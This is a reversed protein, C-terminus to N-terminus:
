GEEFLLELLKRESVRLHRNVTPQTIGLMEAVEEGSTTRPWEFFGSLYATQLVEIQRDTLREELASRMSDGYRSHTARERRAQLTVGEHRSELQEVFTRVDATAALQVTVEVGTKTATLEDLRGGQNVLTRVLTPGTVVLEYLGTESIASVATVRSMSEIRDRVASPDLDPIRVFLRTTSGDSPVGGECTITTDLRRAVESLLTDTAGVSLDLEIVSDTPQRHRSQVERIANAISEGLEVLVSQLMEDFRDTQDAYVTLVGHLFGDYALPVSIVSQFDRSIAETRWQDGRLDTSIADVVTPTGTRATQVAPPGNAAATSLELADLYGGDRGAWTRPEVASGDSRGLWAFSFWQSRTLEDCVAQEIEGVTDADVLVRDVRRIIENVQKLRRLQDNQRRYEAERDKLARERDVRALAAEASSVLLEVLEATRGDAADLRASMVGHEGLPWYSEDEPGQVQSDGVFVDWVHGDGPGVPSAAGSTPGVPRLVNASRDFLYITSSPLDLIEIATEGIINAVQERTGARLLRRTSDHLDALTEAFRRRDSIDRVVGVQGLSGDCHRFPSFRTEVPLTRGDATELETTLTGVESDGSQLRQTLEIAEGITEEDTLLTANSGVLESESYGTMSKVASNVTGINFSEDLTFIGDEITEFIREYQDLTESQEVQETTERGIGLYVTEGDSDQREFAFEVLRDSGVMETTLRQGADCCVAVGDAEIDPFLTPLRSGVIDAEPRDLLACLEENVALVRFGADTVVAPDPLRALLGDFFARPRHRDEGADADPTDSGGVSNEM